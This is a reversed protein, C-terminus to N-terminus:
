AIRIAGTTPATVRRARLAADARVRDGLLRVLVVIADDARAPIVDSAPMGAPAPIGDLAALLLHRLSEDHCRDDAEAIWDLMEGVTRDPGVPVSEPALIRRLM